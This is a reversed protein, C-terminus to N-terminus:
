GGMIRTKKLRQLPFRPVKTETPQGLRLLTILVYNQNEDILVTQINKFFVLAQAPGPRALDISGQNIIEM